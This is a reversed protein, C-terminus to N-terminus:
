MTTVTITSWKSSAQMDSGIAPAGDSPRRLIVWAIILLLVVVTAVPVIVAVYGSSYEATADSTDTETEGAGSGEGSQGVPFAAALAMELNQTAATLAAKRAAIVADAATREFATADAGLTALALQADTYQLKADRVREEAALVILAHESAHTDGSSDKNHSTTNPNRGSSQLM